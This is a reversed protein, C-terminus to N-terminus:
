LLVFELFVAVTNVKQIYNLYNQTTYWYTMDNQEDERVGLREWAQRLQRLYLQAEHHSYPIQACAHPRFPLFSNEGIYEVSASHLNNKVFDLVDKSVSLICGEEFFPCKIASVQQTVLDFIGRSVKKLHMKSTNGKVKKATIAAKLEAETGPYQLESLGSFENEKFVRGATFLIDNFLIDLLFFAYM